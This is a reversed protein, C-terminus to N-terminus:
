LGDRQHIVEKPIYGVQRSRRSAVKVLNETTADATYVLFMEGVQSKLEYSKHSAYKETAVHM